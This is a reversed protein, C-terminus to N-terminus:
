PLEFGDVFLLDDDGRCGIGDGLLRVDDISWGEATVGQDSSLRFRLRLVAADAAIPLPLTETRWPNNGDCRLVQTWAGGDVQIEVRGYDYGAETVCRHEFQLSLGEGSDLALEPSTLAVNANNAYNGAPSDTWAKGAHGSVTATTWPSQASWGLANGSEADDFLLECAPTLAINRTTVAGGTLDLTARSPLYGDAAVRIDHTGAPARRSYDGNGDSATRYDGIEVAADAIATGDAASTVRGTLTAVEDVPRIDLFVAAPPGHEGAADRGQVHILHKGVALPATDIQALVDEASDDFSGDVATLATGEAEPQWPLADLYYDAGAIPHRPMAPPTPPVYEPDPDKYRGDDIRATLTAVDGPVLLDPEVRLEIADPGAPLRYPAQLTRAAYRLAALNLPLTSSEFTSCDEFFAIGLEITYAPVGLEGYAFDVTTGRTPYLGVSQRPDYDNFWALRMGLRALADSNGSALERHGWSWLVLRSYSHIDLFLGQTDPDAPTAEDAPEGPRTDPFLGRVYDVVAQTEPESGAAPGRFTESCTQTSSGGNPYSWFLPYNRNLDIGPHSSGSPPQTPCAGGVTNENKRWAIGSEARKRGDPNAHLLLHFEFHDLLWTADADVGYGALLQEAFRALLEATTYERAHIATMAFLKPKVGATAANSLKLVRLAYGQAANQTRRWSPGIDIASALAPYAAVLADITQGTEEVTRYCAYGPITRLQEAPALSARLLDTGADDIEYAIGEGALLALGARDTDLLVQGKGRDVAIHGFLAGLRRITGADTSAIRVVVADDRATDPAHAGAFAPLLLLALLLRHM